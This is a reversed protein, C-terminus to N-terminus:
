FWGKKLYKAKDKMLFILPFFFTKVLDRKIHHARHHFDVKKKLSRLFVLGVFSGIWETQADSQISVLMCEHSAAVSYPARPQKQYCTGNYAGFDPGSCAALTTTPAAAPIIPINLVEIVIM